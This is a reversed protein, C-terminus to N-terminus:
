YQNATMKFSAVKEVIQTHGCPIILLRHPPLLKALPKVAHPPLLKDYKGIFLFLDINNQEVLKYLQPIDFHMARFGVWANYIQLRKEPTNLIQNVFRLLSEHIIGTKKLYYAFSLLAQPNKMLWSFLKRTPKFRSALTYIPHETVGDPAMLLIRDIQTSFCELTALAFRGGLSFGAVDFREIQNKRLFAKIEEEWIKKTLIEENQFDMAPQNVGHFYLDFAYITYHDGMQHAFPEYCVAGNQGAGHFALLTKPGHGLKTFPLTHYHM